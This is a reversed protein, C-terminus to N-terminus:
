TDGDLDRNTLNLDTMSDLHMNMKKLEKLIARFTPRIDEMSVYAPARYDGGRNIGDDGRIHLAPAVDVFIQLKDTTSMASTDYVLELYDHQYTGGRDAENFIYIMDGTTLNTILLFSELRINHGDLFKSALHIHGEEPQFYYDKVLKKM